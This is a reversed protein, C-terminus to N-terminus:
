NVFFSQMLNDAIEKTANPLAFNLAAKSMSDLKEKDNIVRNLLDNFINPSLNKEEVVIAAGNKAYEYANIRQHDRTAWPLPILIAPKGSLAIEFILGSGARAVILDSIL